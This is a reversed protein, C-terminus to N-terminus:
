TEEWPGWHKDIAAFADAALEPQHWDDGLEMRERWFDRLLGKFTTWADFIEIDSWRNVHFGDPMLWVNMANCITPKNLIQQSANICGLYATLQYLQWLEARPKKLKKGEEPPMVTKWDIITPTENILAVCDATGCYHGTPHMLPQEQLLVPGLEWTDRFDDFAKLYADVQQVTLNAEELQESTVGNLRSEILSHILTGGARARAGRQDMYADAEYVSMGKKILSRRWFTRDFPKRIGTKDLLGSVGPLLWGNFRYSHDQPDFEPVHLIKLQEPISAIM